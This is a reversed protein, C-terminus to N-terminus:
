KPAVKEDLPRFAKLGWPRASDGEFKKVTM